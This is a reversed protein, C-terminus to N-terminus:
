TNLRYLAERACRKGIEEALRNGARNDKETHVGAWQRGDSINGALLNIEYAVSNGSPLIFYNDFLELVAAALARAIADHMARFTGHMPSGEAFAMPLLTDFRKYAYEEPRPSMQEHKSRFNLPGIRGIVDGILAWWFPMGGSVFAADERAITDSKESVRMPVGLEWLRRVVAVWMDMPNDKHVYTAWDRGTRPSRKVGIRSEERAPKKGAQIELYDSRNTMYDIGPTYPDIQILEAFYSNKRLSEPLSDTLDELAIDRWQALRVLQDHEADREPSAFADAQSPFAEYLDLDRPSTAYIRADVPPREAGQARIVCDMQFFDKADRAQMYDRWLGEDTWGKTFHTDWEIANSCEM